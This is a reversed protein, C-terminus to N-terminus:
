ETILECQVGYMEVLRNATEEMPSGAYVHLVLRDSVPYYAFDDTHNSLINWYPEETDASNERGFYINELNECSAFALMGICADEATIWVNKLAPCGDFTYGGIWKVSEPFTVEQLEYCQAFVCEVSEVTGFDVETLNTLRFFAGRNLETIGEQVVVKQIDERHLYYYGPMDSRVCHEPIHSTYVERDTEWVDYYWTSGQGTLTLTKNEDDYNWFVEDGCQGEYISSWAVNYEMAFEYAPAGEECYITLDPSVILESSVDENRNHFPTIGGEETLIETYSNLYVMKLSTCNAFVGPELQAIAGSVYVTELQECWNFACYSVKSVTDPIEVDTIATALFAQWGIEKVSEGFHVESLYNCNAFANASINPVGNVLIVQYIQESYDMWPALTLNPDANNHEAEYQWQGNYDPMWGEGIIYLRGTKEYFEWRLNESCDGQATLEGENTWLYDRAEAVNDKQSSAGSPNSGNNEGTLKVALLIVLVIAIGVLLLLLMTRKKKQEEKSVAVPNKEKNKYTTVVETKNNERDEKKGNVGDKIQEGVFMRYLEDMSSTRNQARLEMGACFAQKQEETLEPVMAGFDLDEDGLVREPADPPVQGTMCYLMTACLAYVDTWPGLSGRNQYQEIPAYGQKLIAETSKTLQKEVDAEGVDRVAGFDLLKVGGDPLMMINDPSIDRHVLGSKHVKGLAKMVPSMLKLTEDVSLKGGQQKVYQKLTIGEVYEMVIYATNNALFFTKVQVIEPVQSFRALMKAERMFREKNNRFRTGVEGSMSTVDMTVSVERMVMGSPYYEKVAVPVDLYLDWGLYTIGFGGQGLVRGILYQEKLITGAPLQHIDNSISEDYGCHECVSGQSKIKMCGYCRKQEM